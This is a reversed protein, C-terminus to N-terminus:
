PQAPERAGVSAAIRNAIAERETRSREGRPTEFRYDAAIRAPRGSLVIARDALMAADEPLHTVLLVTPRSAAILAFLVQEMEQVLTRDLSVFPEDLLLLRPNVSFARALAVRRQMGGSLEHPFYHEFGALGVRRLMEAADQETTQPRVARINDLATLWPLLRADQFVFGAPPAAAAAVGDVSVTGSFLTDIGGVMRLLTSKGVGSPGVLAVVSSPEVVLDFRELLPEPLFDFRKGDIAIDLRPGTMATAAM